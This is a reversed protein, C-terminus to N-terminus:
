PINIWRSCWAQEGENDTVTLTIYQSGRRMWMPLHTGTMPMETGNQAWECSVIYGDDSSCSADLQVFAYAGNYASVSFEFCPVPRENVRVWVRHWQQSSAGWNDVVTLTVTYTGSRSYIHSAVRARATQGDGFDWSYEVIRGDPDYSDSADFQMYGLHNLVYSFQAVPARNVPAIVQVPIVPVEVSIDVDAGLLIALALLGLVM